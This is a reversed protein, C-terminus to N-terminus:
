HRRLSLRLGKKQVPDELLNKRKDLVHSHKIMKNVKFDLSDVVVKRKFEEVEKQRTASLESQLDAAGSFITKFYSQESFTNISPVRSMFDKSLIPKRNLSKLKARMEKVQEFYPFDLAEIEAETPKKSLTNWNQRKM